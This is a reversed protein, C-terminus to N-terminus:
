AAGDRSARSVASERHAIYLTSAFILGAGAWVWRDPVEGFILFALVAVVPLRLFEFPMLASADALRCARLFTIWGLTGLVGNAIMMAAAFGTPAEWAALAPPVSLLTSFLSQYLILTMAQERAVFRKFLLTIAAGLMASLLVMLAGLELPIIGPRLIVLVGAFGAAVASWRRARVTEGLFLAAGATAFLPMAFALAASENLPLVAIGYYGSAMSAVHVLCTLAIPMAFRTRPLSRETWLIIAMVSLLGFLNRFLVVLFAHAGDDAALRITVNQIGTILVTALAYGTAVLAPNM